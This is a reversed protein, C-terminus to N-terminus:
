QAPTMDGKADVNYLKGQYTIQSPQAAPAGTGVTKLKDYASGLASRYTGDITSDFAKMRGNLIAANLGSSKNIGPFISAIDAGEQTSYATGSVANRYIQLNAQIQTALDVLKPDNLTGLKNIVKEYNGSFIGTKGGNAYFDALNKQIDALSSQATEYKTVNSAETQGMINKAQNKIVTVPDEGSNIANTVAAAQPKTFKGSGLITSVLGAYPGAVAGGGGANQGAQDPTLGKNISILKSPDGDWNDPVALIRNGADITKTYSPPLGLDISDLTVKGNLPNQRAVIYKGGEVRKDLIQDQPTNLLFAGKLAQADGGYQKLLYDYSAPDTTKLGEPTVGTATLNKIHEGAAALQDAQMKATAARNAINGTVTDNYDLRQQRAETAADSRIKGLLQQITAQQEAKIKDTAQQGQQTTKQQAVDAESSGALGTLTSIAATSRDNKDNITAQEKVLSAYYDNLSNIEGQAAASKKAQIAEETQPTPAALPTDTYGTRSYYDTSASPSTTDTPSPTAAPSSSSFQAAVGAVAKQQDPTLGAPTSAFEAGVKSVAEAQPDLAM